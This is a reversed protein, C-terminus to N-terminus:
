KIQAAKLQEEHSPVRPLNRTSGPDAAARLLNEAFLRAAPDTSITQEFDLDCIWLRGQGLPIEFLVTRYQEPLRAAPIYSHPPIYRLLERARGSQKLRHSQSAIFLRWDNSRGWWKADMPHLNQALKTGFIPALDAFEVESEKFDLIEEPFIEVIEKDPSFLIATAGREILQRISGGEQLAGLPHERGLLIVAPGAGGLLSQDTITSHFHLKALRSLEPGLSLALANELLRKEAPAPKAFIQIPETTQSLEKKNALLRLKLRAAKRAVGSAPTVFHIPLRATQYYALYAIRGVSTEVISKGSSANEVNLQLELDDYDRFNDDDNTVFVVTDVPEYEYFRRRSTELALGMPAWAQRVAECVPYPSIRKPDYSHAFWCEAAFLMFGATKNSREFRLREAWRKTVARHHELFATPDSGPYAYQGVWAQPTLLDRTYRLVPLGSDLDPYGSSMEQGILPRKWINRKTEVEFASNTVFSSPGYWNNYRHIDDIDGDDIGSPKLSTDFFEAARQYESSAIVPRAPDLRRTQKVVTSLQQWKELNKTDGLLMENGVTYILVSPHNRCRKIIDENEMLWHDFLEPPTIGIKGALAWPRIGEISVGLGIEDAANLWAENWPTAHTRTIRVNTDHLAQILKRPLEPGWPNKGYPLHNAGRLWYPKGNLFLQNGHVEFTRFGVQRTWLDLLEGVGSELTVELRYLNPTAPTWLKPQVNTLTLTQKTLEGLQIPLAVAAFTKGTNSDTWRANIFGSQVAATSSAQVRVEAGNLEPIFWVDQIKAPGRVALKVPQWIGHLDYSRNEFGPLLPGYMGKSLSRVKSATLNVTVAEGMFLSSTPIKEMSVFVAILNMGTKCRTTLDFSFRSFMGTHEGLLEGNCFVKCKMAIGEFELFLRRGGPLQPLKLKLHYWGEEARETDFGLRKLRADERRQFDASDDLWWRVRNLLQPVPVPVFGLQSETAEPKEGRAIAYGPKYLWEGSLDFSHGPQLQQVTFTLEGNRPQASAASDALLLLCGLLIRVPNKM